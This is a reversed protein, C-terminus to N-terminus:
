NFCLLGRWLADLVLLAFITDFCVPIYFYFILTLRTCVKIPSLYIGIDIVIDIVCCM